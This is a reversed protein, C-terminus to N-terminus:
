SISEYYELLDNNNTRDYKADIIMQKYQSRDGYNTHDSLITKAWELATNKLSIYHVLRTLEIDKPVVDSAYVPVGCAQAEVFVIGLGEYRSPLIFCDMMSYVGAMDDRNGIFLIKSGLKKSEAYQKIRIELEGTGAWVFKANEKRLAIQEFVDILFYPNKQYTQRCVTGYVFDNEKISLEKRLENRKQESYYILNTDITNRIVYFKRHGFMSKGALNSCALYRNCNHVCQVNYFLTFLLSHLNHIHIPNHSHFIRIPVNCKKAIQSAILAYYGIIHIHVIGYNGNEIIKKVFDYARKKDPKGSRDEEIRIGSTEVEDKVDEQPLIYFNGGNNLVTKIYPSGWNYMACFDVEYGAKILKNYHNMIVSTVGNSVRLNGIIFLIKKNLKNMMKRKYVDGYDM